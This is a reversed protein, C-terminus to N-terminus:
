WFGEATATPGALSSPYLSSKLSADFTPLSKLLTLIDTGLVTKRKKLAPSAAGGGHDGVRGGLYAAHEPAQVLRVQGGQVLLLAHVLPQVLPEADGHVQQVRHGPVPLGRPLRDLCDGVLYHERINLRSIRKEKEKGQVHQM